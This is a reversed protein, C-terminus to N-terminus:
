FPLYKNVYNLNQLKYQIIILCCQNFELKSQKIQPRYLKLMKDKMSIIFTASKGMGFVMRLTQMILIVLNCGRSIMKRQKWPQLASIGVNPMTPSLSSILKETEILQPARHRLCLFSYSMKWHQQVLFFIVNELEM